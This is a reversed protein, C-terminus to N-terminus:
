PWQSFSVSLLELRRTGLMKNGKKARGFRVAIPLTPLRCFYGAKVKHWGLEKTRSGLTPHIYWRCALLPANCDLFPWFL